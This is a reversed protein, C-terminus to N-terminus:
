TAESQEGLVRPTNNKYNDKRSHRSPTQPQSLCTAEPRITRDQPVAFSLFNQSMLPLTLTKGDSCKHCLVSHRETTRSQMRLQSYAGGFIQAKPAVSAVTHRLVELCDMLEQCKHLLCSPFPSFNLQNRRTDKIKLICSIKIKHENTKARMSSQTLTDSPRPNSDCTPTLQGTPASFQLWTLLLHEETSLWRKLEKKTAGTPCNQM